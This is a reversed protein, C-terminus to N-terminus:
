CEGLPRFTAWDPWEAPMLKRLNWEITLIENRRTTWRRKIAM